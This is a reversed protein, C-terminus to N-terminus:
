LIANIGAEVSVKAIWYGIPISIGLVFLDDAHEKIWEIM